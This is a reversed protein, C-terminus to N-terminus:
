HGRVGLAITEVESQVSFHHLLEAHWRNAHLFPALGPRRESEIPVSFAALDLCRGAHACHVFSDAVPHFCDLCWPRSPHKLALLYCSSRSRRALPDTTPAHRRRGPWKLGYKIRIPNVARSPREALYHCSSPTNSCLM